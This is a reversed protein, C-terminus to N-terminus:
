DDGVPLDVRYAATATTVVLGSQGRHVSLIPGALDVPRETLSGAAVDYAFISTDGGLFLVTGDTNGALGASPLGTGMRSAIDEGDAVLWLEGAADISWCTEGQPRFIWSPLRDYGEGVDAVAGGAAAVTYVGLAGSRPHTGVFSLRDGAGTAVVDLAGPRYEAPGAVALGSDIEIIEAGTSAYAGGETGPALAAVSPNSLRLALAGDHRYVGEGTIALYLAGDAAEVTDVLNAIGEVLVTAPLPPVATDSTDTTDSTDATDTGNAGSATDAQRGPAPAGASCALLLPLSLVPRISLM